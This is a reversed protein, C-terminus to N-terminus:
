KAGILARFLGLTPAKRVSYLTFRKLLHNHIMVLEYSIEGGPYTHQVLAAAQLKDDFHQQMPDHLPRQSPSCTDRLYALVPYFDQAGNGESVAEVLTTTRQQPM